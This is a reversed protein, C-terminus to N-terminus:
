QAGVRTPAHLRIATGGRRRREEGTTTASRPHVALSTRAPAGTTTPDPLRAVAAGGGGRGGEAGATRATAHSGTAAGGGDDAGRREQPGRPAPPTPDPLQAVGRGVGESGGASRERRVPSPSFSSKQALLLKKLRSLFSYRSLGTFLRSPRDLRATARGTTM